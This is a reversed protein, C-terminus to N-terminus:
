CFLNRFKHCTILVDISGCVFLLLIMAERAKWKSTNMNKNIDFNTKVFRFYFVYLNKNYINISRDTIYLLVMQLLM